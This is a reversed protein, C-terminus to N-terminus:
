IMRNLMKEKLMNVVLRDLVMWERREWEVFESAWTISNDKIMAIQKASVNDYARAMSRHKLQFHELLLIGIVCCGLSASQLYYLQM